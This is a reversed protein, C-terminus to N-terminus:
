VREIEPQQTLAVLAEGFERRLREEAQQVFLTAMASYRETSEKHHQFKKLHEMAKALKNDREIGAPMSAVNEFITRLMEFQVALQTLLSGREEVLRHRNLGFVKISVDGRVDVKGNTKLPEVTPLSPYDLRWRLHEEPNHRTPDILLPDELTLDDDPKFARVAGRLPFADKKGALQKNSSRTPIGNETVEILYHKRRRNCDICSSLLNEWQLALWWYGLHTPDEAVAGKPRYHEVDTPQLAAIKSECYACKCAFLLELAAVVDVEKYARFEFAAKAPQGQSYHEAARQREKAAYSDAALLSGPPAVRSRDVYRM